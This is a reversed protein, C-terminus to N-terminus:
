LGILVLQAPDQGRELSLRLRHRHTLGHDRQWGADLETLEKGRLFSPLLDQAADPIAVQGAKRELVLLHLQLEQIHIVILLLLM